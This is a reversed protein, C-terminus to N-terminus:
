VTTFNTVSNQALSNGFLDKVNKTAFATYAEASLLTASPTFTVIKKTGDLSLNGVVNAGAADVLFFNADTVVSDQIEKDFTWVINTNDSVASAGDVPSVTVTPATTDAPLEIASFFTSAYADNNDIMRSWQQDYNRRIFTGTITPTNYTVNDDKTKNQSEPEQFKGKLLKYFRFTGDSKEARFMIAVYPPIDTSKKVLEGNVISNGLLDAQVSIPLDGINLTVDTEGLATGSESPGDDAFLTGSATKPKIDATIAQQLRKPVDYSIGTSDDKTVKAYYIDKLGVLAMNEREKYNSKLKTDYRKIFSKTTKKM